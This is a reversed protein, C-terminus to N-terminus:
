GEGDRSAWDPPRRELFSSLGEQGERSGRMESTKDLTWERLEEFSGTWTDLKESLRKAETVAMPGSSMLDDIVTGAASDFHDSSDAISNVLGIRLAEQAGVRSALM